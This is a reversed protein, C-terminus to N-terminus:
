QGFVNPFYFNDVDTNLKMQYGMGPIFNGIGNFGYAPWYANGDNDKILEVDESIAAISVSVEMPEVQTFGIINWGDSLSVYIQNETYTSEELQNITNQLIVNEVVQTQYLYNAQSTILELSEIEQQLDVNVQHMSNYLDQWTNLCSGNNQTAELNYEFYAPNTCGYITSENCIGPNLECIDDGILIIDISNIWRFSNTFYQNHGNSDGYSVILEYQEGSPFAVFWTIEEGEAFGEDFVDGAGWIPFGISSNNNWIANGACQYNGFDDVYFAGILSEDPIPSSLIVTEIILISENSGTLQYNFDVAEISLGGLIFCVFVRKM